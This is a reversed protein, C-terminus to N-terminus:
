PLFVSAGDNVRVFGVLVDQAITTPFSHVTGDGLLVNFIETHSSGLVYSAVEKYNYAQQRTTPEATSPDNPGRAVSVVYQNNNQLAVLVWNARSAGQTFIGADFMAGAHEIFGTGPDKIRGTPRSDLAWKPIHKESFCIQNSTGDSLWGFNDRPGFGTCWPFLATVRECTANMGAHEGMIGGSPFIDTINVSDGQTTQSWTCRPSRFPGCVYSQSCLATSDATDKGIRWYWWGDTENLGDGNDIFSTVVAYDARPGVGADDNGDWAGLRDVYKNRRSGRSPCFFFSTSSLIEKYEPTLAGWWYISGVLRSNDSVSWDWPDTSRMTQPYSFIGHITNGSGDANAGIHDSNVISATPSLPGPSTLIDWLENKEYYPTLLLLTGQDMENAGLPPLGNQTDHYNHVALGIQKMHNVCQMRRAAERAAQVAPLLLAVLMGIIAIVVLLEVLTFGALPLAKARTRIHEARV